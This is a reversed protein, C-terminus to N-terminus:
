KIGCRPWHWWSSTEAKTQKPGGPFLLNFNGRLKFSSVPSANKIEAINIGTPIVVPKGALPIGWDEMAKFMFNGSVQVKDAKGLAEAFRTARWKIPTKALPHPLLTGRLAHEGHNAVVTPIRVETLKSVLISAAPSHCHIIEIHNDSFFQAVEKRVRCYHWYRLPEDLYLYLLLLARRLFYNRIREATIHPVISKPPYSHGINFLTINELDAFYRVLEQNLIISVNEGKDRLCRALEHVWAEVGGWGDDIVVQCINM